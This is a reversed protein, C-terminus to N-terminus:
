RQGEARWQKVWQLPVASHGDRGRSVDNEQLRGGDRRQRNVADDRGGEMNRGDKVEQDQADEKSM